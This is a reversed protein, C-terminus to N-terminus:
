NIKNFNKNFLLINVFYIKSNINYEFYKGSAYLSEHYRDKPLCNNLVWEKILLDNMYKGQQKYM